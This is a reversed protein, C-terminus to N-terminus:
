KQGKALVTVSSTDLLIGLADSLFVENTIPCSNNKVLFAISFNYTAGPLLNLFTKRKVVTSASRIWDDKGNWILSRPYSDVLKIIGAYTTFGKNTVQILYHLEGYCSNKKVIKRVTLQAPFIPDPVPPPPPPPCPGCSPTIYVTSQRSLSGSTVTNTYSSIDANLVKAALLFTLEQGPALTPVIIEYGGPVTVWPSSPPVLPGFSAPLSSENLVVNTLNADGDNAVTIEWIALQGPQLNTTKTTKELILNGTGILNSTGSSAKIEDAVYESLSYSLVATNELPSVPNPVLEICYNILLVTGLPFYNEIQVTYSLDPNQNVFVPLPPTTQADIFVYSAIQNPLDRIIVNYAASTSAQTHGVEVTYCVPQSSVIPNTLCNKRIYLEPRSINEEVSSTIGFGTAENSFTDADTIQADILILLTTNVAGVSATVTSTLTLPNTGAVLLDSAIGQFDGPLLPSSTLLTAALNTLGSFTDTVSLQTTGWPVTVLIAFQVAQGVLYPGPTIVSKELQYPILETCTTDQTYYNNLGVPGDYGTRAYGVETNNADISKWEVSATNCFKERETFEPVFSVTFQVEKGPLLKEGAVEPWYISANTFLSAPVIDDVLFPFNQLVKDSILVDWASSSWSSKENTVTVLYSAPEGSIIPLSPGEKKLSLSIPEVVHFSALPLPLVPIITPTPPAGVNHTGTTTPDYFIGAVNKKCNSIRLYYKWEVTRATTIEASFTQFNDFILIGKRPDFNSSMTVGDLSSLVYSDGGVSALRSPDVDVFAFDTVIQNVSTTSNPEATLKYTLEIIEGPAGVVGRDSGYDATHDSYTYNKSEVTLFLGILFSAQACVPGYNRAQPTPTTYSSWNVCAQNTIIDGSQANTYTGEVQFTLSSGPVFPTTFTLTFPDSGPPSVSTGPPAPGILSLPTFVGPPVIGPTPDSIVANYASSTGKNTVTIQYLVTTGGPGAIRSVIAKEIELRPEVITFTFSRNINCPGPSYTTNIVPRVGNTLAPNSGNFLLNYNVAITGAVSTSTVQGFDFSLSTATFSVPLDSGTIAVNNLVTSVFAIEVGQTTSITLTNPTNVLIPFTVTLTQLVTQGLTVNPLTPLGPAPAANTIATTIRKVTLNAASTRVLGLNTVFNQGNEPVNTWSTIRATNIINPCYAVDGVRLQYILIIVSRSPIEEPPISYNADFTFLYNPSSTTYSNILTGDSRYWAFGETSTNAPLLDEIAPAYAPASGKNCVLVVYRVADGENLNSANMSLFNDFYAEDVTITLPPPNIPSQFPGFNATYAASLNPSYTIANLSSVNVVSKKIYLDPNGLVLPLPTYDSIDSNTSNFFRYFLQNSFILDPFYPQKNVEVTILLDIVQQEDPAVFKTGYDFILGNSSNDRTVVPLGPVPLTLTNDPGYSITWVAPVGAFPQVVPNLPFQSASVIPSPFFDYVKLDEFNAIPFDLKLRYTLTNGPLVAAPIVGIAGNYAYLTKQKTILPYTFRVQATTEVINGSPIGDPSNEAKLSISNNVYDGPGLIVPPYDPSNPTYVGTLETFYVLGATSAKGLLNSLTFIVQTTPDYPPLFPPPEAGPVLASVQVQIPNLPVGDYTPPNASGTDQFIQGASMLDKVVFNRFIFYDSTRIQVTYKLLSGAFQGFTVREVNKSVALPSLPITVVNSDVLNVGGDLLSASNSTNVVSEPNIPDIVPITTGNLFEAGYVRLVIVKSIPGAVAGFDWEVVQTVPDYSIPAPASSLFRLQPQLIDRVIMQGIASGAAVDVVITMTFENSEGTAQTTGTSIQLSKRITYPLATLNLSQLTGIQTTQGFTPSNGLLFMPRARVFAPDLNTVKTTFEYKLTPQANSYSSYGIKYQAYNEGVVTGPLLLAGPLPSSGPVRTIIQGARRWNNGDWTAYVSLGSISVNPSYYYEVVPLYNLTASANRFTSELQFNSEKLIPTPANLSLTAM